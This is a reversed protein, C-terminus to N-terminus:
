HHVCTTIKIMYVQFLPGRIWNKEELSGTNISTTRKNDSGRSPFPSVSSICFIPQFSKGKRTIVEAWGSRAQPM